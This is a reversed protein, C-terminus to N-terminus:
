PEGNVLADLLVSNAVGAPEALGLLTGLLTRVLKAADDKPLSADTSLVVTVHSTAVSEDARLHKIELRHATRQTPSAGNEKSPKSGITYLADQVGATFALESVLLLKRKTGNPTMEIIVAECSNASSGHEVTDAPHYVLKTKDPIM